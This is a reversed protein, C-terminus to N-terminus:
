SHSGHTMGRLMALVAKKEEAIDKQLSAFQSPSLRGSAKDVEARGLLTNLEDIRRSVRRELTSALKQAQQATLKPHSSKRKM